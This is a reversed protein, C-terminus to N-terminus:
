DRTKKWFDMGSELADKLESAGAYVQRAARYAPNAREMEDLLINKADRLKAAHNTDGVRYAKSIEDDLSVKIMHLNDFSVPAEIDIASDGPGVSRRAKSVSSKM